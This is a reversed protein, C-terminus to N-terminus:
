APALQDHKRTPELLYSHCFSRAAQESSYKAVFGSAQRLKTDSVILPHRALHQGASRGGRKSRLLNGAVPNSMERLTGSAVVGKGAVNYTGNLRNTIAFEAARTLDHQHVLQIPVRPDRSSAMTNWLLEDAAPSSGSPGVSMASRLIAINLGSGDAASEFEDTKLASEADLLLRHAPTPSTKSRETLPIPNTSGVGYVRIDSLYVLQRVDGLRCAQMWHGTDALFQQADIWDYHSGIHIVSDVSELHFVDPVDAMTLRRNDLVLDWAKMQMIEPIDDITLIAGTRNPEMRYASVQKVPQLLPRADIAVLQIGPFATELHMLMLAGLTTSSGVVAIVRPSEHSTQRVTTMPAITGHAVPFRQRM